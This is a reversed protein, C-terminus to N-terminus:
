YKRPERVQDARELESVLQQPQAKHTLSPLPPDDANAAVRQWGASYDGM